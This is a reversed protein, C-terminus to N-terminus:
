YKDSSRRCFNSNFRNADCIWDLFNKEDLDKKFNNPRLYIVINCVSCM